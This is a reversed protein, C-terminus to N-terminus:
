ARSPQETSSRSGTVVDAEGAVGADFGLAASVLPAWIAFSSLVEGIPAAWGESEADSPTCGVSRTTAGGPPPAPSVFGFVGAGPACAGCGSGTASTGATPM